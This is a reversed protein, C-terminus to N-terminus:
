PFSCTVGEGDVCERDRTDVLLYGLTRIASNHLYQLHHTHFWGM